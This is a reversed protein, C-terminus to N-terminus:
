VRVPRLLRRKEYREDLKELPVGYYESLYELVIRRVAQSAFEYGKERMYRELFPIAKLPIYAQIRTSKTVVMQHNM